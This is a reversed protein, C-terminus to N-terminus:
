HVHNGADYVICRLANHVMRWVNCEGYVSYGISVMCCQLCWVSVGAVGNSTYVMYLMCWVACVEYVMCWTGYVM